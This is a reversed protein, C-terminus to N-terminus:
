NPMGGFALAHAGGLDNKPFPLMQQTDQVRDLTASQGGVPQLLLAAHEFLEDVRAGLFQVV